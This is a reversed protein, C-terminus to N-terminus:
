PDSRGHGAGKGLGMDVHSGFQLFNKPLKEMLSRFMTCLLFGWFFNSSLYIILSVMDLTVLGNPVSPRLTRPGGEFVVKGNGVDVFTSNLWGGLRPSAEFLVIRTSPPLSKSLYYATSLGTIGGGLVAVDPIDPRPADRQTSYKRCPSIPNWLRCASRKYSKILSNNLIQIKSKCRPYSQPM